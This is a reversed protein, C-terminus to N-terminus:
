IIYAHGPKNIWEGVSPCKLQESHQHHLAHVNTFCSFLVQKMGRKVKNGVELQHGLGTMRGSNKRLNIEQIMVKDWSEM